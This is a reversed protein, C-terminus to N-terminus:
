GTKQFLLIDRVVIFFKNKQDAIMFKCGVHLFEHGRLLTSQTLQILQFALGIMKCAKLIKQYFIKNRYVLVKTNRIVIYLLQQPLCLVGTSSRLLLLMCLSGYLLAAFGRAPLFPGPVAFGRLSFTSCLAALGRAARCLALFKGEKCAQQKLQYVQRKIQRKCHNFRRPEQYPIDPVYRNQGGEGNRCHPQWEDAILGHSPSIKNNRNPRM